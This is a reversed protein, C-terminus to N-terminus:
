IAVGKNKMEENLKGILMEGDIGTLLKYFESRFFQEIQKIQYKATRDKPYLTLTQLGKRYDNVASLVIANALNQYNDNM